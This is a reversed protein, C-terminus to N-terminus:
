LPLLPAFYVLAVAAFLLGCLMAFTAAYRRTTRDRFLDGAKPVIYQLHSGHRSTKAAMILEVAFVLAMSVATMVFHTQSLSGLHAAAALRLIGVACVFGRLISFLIAAPAAYITFGAAFLLILYRAESYYRSFLERIDLRCVYVYGEAIGSLYGTYKYIYVAVAVGCLGLLAHILFSDRYKKQEKIDRQNM